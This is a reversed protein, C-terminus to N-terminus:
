TLELWRPQDSAQSQNDSDAGLMVDLSESIFKAVGILDDQWFFQRMTSCRFLTAYKDRIYQLHPCEFVLHKEDGLSGHGCLTCVRDARPTGTWSGSDRPLGHCGMRFRLFQRLCRAPLPLSLVHKRLCGSPRAFWALYTCLRSKHSPCTRPCYDLDQWASDARDALVQTFKAVDIYTMESASIVLDYGLKRVGKIISWAWNKVNKTVAAQCADLAIRKYFNADPLSVLDNWFRVARLWSENEFPQVDLEKMLIATAVTSRVGVIQKLIRLHSLGLSDRASSLPASLRYPAWVESGYLGTPPVCTQYLNLLLGISAACQLQGFQRQLLAWAGWVKRNLDSYTAHLGQQAQFILGLYKMQVVWELPQGYCVWQFPGPWVQSFVLVKTKDASILMGTAECFEVTANILAQLDKPSEALLVFDDAYGLDPVRRGDSLVPGTDQCRAALFRHLGDAFLGFLTPSLPCGQKLGTKSAVSQGTRGQVKVCLQSNEYLSQLARLM